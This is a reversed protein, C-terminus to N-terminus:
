FLFSRLLSAFSGSRGRKPATRHAWLRCHSPRSCGSVALATGLPRRGEAPGANHPATAAAMRRAFMIALAAAGFALLSVRLGSGALPNLIRGVVRAHPSRRFALPLFYGLLNGAWCGGGVAGIWALRKRRIRWDFLQCVSGVVVLLVAAGMLPFALLAGLEANPATFTLVGAADLPLALLLSGWGAVQFWRDRM